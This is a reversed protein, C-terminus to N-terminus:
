NTPFIVVVRDAKKKYEEWKKKSDFCNGEWGHDEFYMGEICYDSSDDCYGGDTLDAVPSYSNGEADSSICVQCDDMESGLENLMEKLEKVTM